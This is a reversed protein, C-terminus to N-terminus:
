PFLVKHQADLSKKIRATFEPWRTDKGERKAVEYASRLADNADKLQEHIDIRYQEERKSAEIAHANMESAYEEMATRVFLGLHQIATVLEAAQNVNGCEQIDRISADFADTIHKPIEPTKM